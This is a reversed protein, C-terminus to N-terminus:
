YVYRRGKNKAYTGGGSRLYEGGKGFGAGSKSKEREKPAKRGKKKVSKRSPMPIGIDRSKGSGEEDGRPGIKTLM